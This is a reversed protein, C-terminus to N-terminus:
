ISSMRTFFSRRRRGTVKNQQSSADLSQAMSSDEDHATTDWAEADIQIRKTTLFDVFEARSVRFLDSCKNKVNKLQEVIDDALVPKAQITNPTSAQANLYPIKTVCRKVLDRVNTSVAQAAQSTKQKEQEALRNREEIRRENKQIVSAIKRLCSIM